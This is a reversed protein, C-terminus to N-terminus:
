APRRYHDLLSAVPDAGQSLVGDAEQAPEGGLREVSRAPVRKRYIVKDDVPAYFGELRAAEVYGSREYFARTAAYDSRGATEIWIAGGGGEGVAGEVRGLLRRGVGRGQERPDVVIWYLHFSDRSGAARGWCAYAVPERREPDHAFLFEYGSAAGASLRARVLERAVDVEEADFKGTEVVLRQVEAEDGVVVEARYRETRTM